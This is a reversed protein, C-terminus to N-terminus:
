MENDLIYPFEDKNINSNTLNDWVRLFENSFELEKMINKGEESYSSNDLYGPFQKLYNYRWIIFKQYKKKKDKILNINNSKITKKLDNLFQKRKTSLTTAMAKEDLIENSSNKYTPVPQYNQVQQFPVFSGNPFLNQAQSKEITTPNTQTTTFNKM